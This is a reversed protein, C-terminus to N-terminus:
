IGEKEEIDTKYPCSEDLMHCALLVGSQRGM